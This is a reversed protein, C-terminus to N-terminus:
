RSASSTGWGGDPSMFSTPDRRLEKRAALRWAQAEAVTKFTPGKLPHRALAHHLEGRYSPSCDCTDDHQSACRSQHRVSIGTLAHDHDANM